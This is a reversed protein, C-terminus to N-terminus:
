SDVMEIGLIIRMVVLWKVKSQLDWFTCTELLRVIWFRCPKKALCHETCHINKPAFHVLVFSAQVSSLLYTKLHSVINSSVKTILKTNKLFELHICDRASGTTWFGTLNGLPAM